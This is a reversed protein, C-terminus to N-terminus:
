GCSLIDRLLAAIRATRKENDTMMALIHVVDIVGQVYDASEDANVTYRHCLDYVRSLEANNM